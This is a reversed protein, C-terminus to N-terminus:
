GRRLPVPGCDSQPQAAEPWVIDICAADPLARLVAQKHRILFTLRDFDAACRATRLEDEVTHLACILQRVSSTDHDRM